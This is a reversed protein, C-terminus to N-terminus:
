KKKKKKYVYHADSPTSEELSTRRYLLLPVDRPANVKRGERRCSYVYLIYIQLNSVCKSHSCSFQRSIFYVLRTHSLYLSYSIRTAICHCNKIYVYGYMQIYVVSLILIYISIISNFNIRRHSQPYVISDTFFFFFFPVVTTEM